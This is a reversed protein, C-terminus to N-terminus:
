VRRSSIRGGCSFRSHECSSFNEGQRGKASGKKYCITMGMQTCQQRPTGLKSCRDLETPMADGAGIEGLIHWSPFEEPYTPISGGKGSAFQATNSNVQIHGEGTM